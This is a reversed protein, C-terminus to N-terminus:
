AFLMRSSNRKSFDSLLFEKLRKREKEDADTLKNLNIDVSSEYLQHILPNESINRLMNNDKKYTNTVCPFIRPPAFLFISPIVNLSVTKRRKSKQVSYYREVNQV